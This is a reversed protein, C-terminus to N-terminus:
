PNLHFRTLTVKQRIEKHTYPTTALPQFTHTAAYRTRISEMDRDGSLLYGESPLPTDRKKYPRPKGGGQHPTSPHPSDFPLFINGLYFNLGYLNPYRRLDNMVYVNGRQLPYTRMIGEAFLRISASRREGRM